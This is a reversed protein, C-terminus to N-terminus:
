FAAKASLRLSRPEGWLGQSYFGIQEYYRKDFLNDLNASVSLNDNVQYRAMLSTLAYAGQGM